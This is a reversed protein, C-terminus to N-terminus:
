LAGSRLEAITIQYGRVTCAHMKYGSFIRGDAFM